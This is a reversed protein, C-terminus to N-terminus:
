KALAWVQYPSTEPDFPAYAYDGYLAVVHLGAPVDTQQPADTMHNWRDGDIM